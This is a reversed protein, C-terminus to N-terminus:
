SLVVYDPRGSIRPLRMAVRNEEAIRNTAVRRDSQNRGPERAIREYERHSRAMDRYNRMAERERHRAQQGSAQAIREMAPLFQRWSVGPEAPRAEVGVAVDDARFM